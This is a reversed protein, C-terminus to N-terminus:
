NENKYRKALCVSCIAYQQLPCGKDYCNMEKHCESCTHKHPEGLKELHVINAM